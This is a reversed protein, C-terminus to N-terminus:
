IQSGDVLIGHERAMELEILAIDYKLGAQAHAMDAYSEYMNVLEMLSRRGMRYQDTFMGLGAGTQRVVEADREAKAQLAARRSALAGLRLGADHRATEVRAIAAETSADLAALTDATGFGLMQGLGLTLGADTGGPGSSATAGLSPLHGARAIRAQAIARAREGEALKVALPEPTAAATQLGATPLADLGSLAALPRGTMAQLQAEALAAADADAQALAQMETLKQALVRAESMDSLGGSVRERMIRDYEAIRAAAERAVAAQDRAKQAAIYHSLGQHVTDNMERSLAVAAVEVDAAAFEREAQKAGNDFLVQELVLSAALDGLRTLSIQPGIQPLWNKSKAQATLRAVRLEAQASGKSAALVAQAVQAYPGAAPLVSRRASLDAILASSQATTGPTGFGLTGTQAAPALPARGTPFPTGAICGGLGLALAATSATRAVAAARSLPSPRSKRTM